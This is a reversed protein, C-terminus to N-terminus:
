QTATTLLYELEVGLRREDFYPRITDVMEEDLARRQDSDITELLGVFTGSTTAVARWFHAPSLARYLVTETEFAVQEVRDEIRDAVIESDGWSFPPKSFEPIDVPDLYTALVSTMFPYLSTPTWATFGLRGGPRLVRLLEATTAAPPDGYMHAFSSLMVDYSNDASPLDRADGKSYEAAVGAIEANREAEELMSPTIDVGTVDGGARAATIAVSGTGCGVDLVTDDSEVATRDVLHGAAPYYGPAMEDYAGRAWHSIQDAMADELHM